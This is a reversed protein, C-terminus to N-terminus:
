ARVGGEAVTTLARRVLVGAVEKRYEASAHADGTPDIGAAASQAADALVAVDALSRSTVAEEAGPARVPRDAVGFLVIRASECTGDDGVNAAVVAGALAFDAQKRAVEQLATRAGPGQAPFRVSTLLEDPQLATTFYGQSLEDAPITREGGPGRAVVEGGLALLVAPIEAAPDAHAVTGGITGRSRIPPHAVHRLAEVILPAAARAEASREIAAQRTVAGIELNGNARVGSLEAIRNVDVLVGPTALRLNMLPVLSQGGALVKAEDGHEGLAAVAEEVTEAAVYKFPAPKL